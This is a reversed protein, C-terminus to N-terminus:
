ADELKQRANGPDYFPTSAVTAGVLRGNGLRISFQGRQALTPAVYALGIVKGVAPSDAISTVRGAIEGAEIVLHSELPLGQAPDDLTFGTLAQRVPKRTLIALSRQGVFYPKDMKVAWGLGAEFPHTLGDSDQGLILHGKELRLLRQAEVGFLRLGHAAGAETLAEWVPLARDAPVHIEYGLEGVFGVRLLRAPVGAVEAMRVALYPFAADSLDLATLTRLVMRSQPGALNFAAMQGTLNVIGVRLGWILAWRQLERYVTAAGSTTTTFYFHQEALRAIVGDDILTGAEECMVGYRTMGPKLSAFRGTYVRELFVAADPGRLEIKGLTGVDILGVANRVATAEARICAARSAGPVAYYEPRQWQGAPMWVAGAAAHLDHTPTRREVSFGRGALLAMPAPQYLPRATTTGVAEIPERRLRALVRVANMNSHKGQSPGMGVTSYRKMLEINDFGEQAANALDRVQLDEDFDIFDKGKPHAFVPYPHSPSEAPAPLPGFEPLARGLAYAAAGAGAREGDVLRAALDVVGNVKGCAYLGPPLTRPVFQQTAEDYRLQAGAQYLLPAAPAYGASMWVGDCPVEHVPVVRGADIRGIEVAALTGDAGARAGALAAGSSTRVGRAALLEAARRSQPGPAARLDLVAAVEIGADLADLAAVYGQANAILLVLRTCPAVAYRRLLRQAGSALMVGPLDNHRFVVPQEFAGQAVVVAGARLKVIHTPLALPVWHDAYYGLATAQTHVGIRPHAQVRAILAALEARAAADREAYQGSGGLRPDTEALAVEAGAEAAALAAALGSPGAGIVLVDAFAYRKPTKEAPADLQLRGLGTLARFLREWRPFLKKSHFAKYYFGVPLFPAFLDLLRARDGALGGFTNVAQVDMGAALPTLDARLNPRSRGNHTVQMLANIDHGALSLLGRPRHYKFSRGLVRVGNAALASAISDGAYGHLARGEFRFALPQTRDIWEGPQPPLRKM